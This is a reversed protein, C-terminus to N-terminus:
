RHRLGALIVKKKLEDGVGQTLSDGLGVVHVRKAIFYGPIDWATFAIEQRKSLSEITKVSESQCGALLLSFAIVILFVRRM